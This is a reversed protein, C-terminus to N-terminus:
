VSLARRGLRRWMLDFQERSWTVRRGTLPDNIALRDGALGTLVVTHENLNVAVRKGDPTRWTKYPGDSLGVWAMVPRGHLLSRYVAGPSGGSLNRLKVGRRAALNKIPGQYVGFGGAPGGGNPRGVYGSSPDGWTTSDSGVVPDLPMSHPLQRQLSLQGANVSKAALLMSLAATECNNQLAQQLIPLTAQAAIAREPLQVDGGGARIAFRVLQAVRPRDTEFTVRAAAVRRTHRDPIRRLVHNLGRPTLVRLRDVSGRMLVLRGRLVRVQGSQQSRNRHEPTNGRGGSLTLWLALLGLLALFLRWGWRRRRETARDYIQEPAERNRSGPDRRTSM